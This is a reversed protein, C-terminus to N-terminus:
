SVFNLSIRIKTRLDEFVMLANESAVDLHYVHNALM